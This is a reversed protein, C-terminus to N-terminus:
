VDRGCHKCVKAKALIREACFPCEVEVRRAEPLPQREIVREIVKEKGGGMAMVAALLLGLPGLFLGLLCGTGAQNKGSLIAASLVGCLALVFGIEM